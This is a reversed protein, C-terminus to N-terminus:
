CKLSNKYCEIVQFWNENFCFAIFLLVKIASAKPRAKEDAAMALGKISQLKNHRGNGNARDTEAIGHDDINLSVLVALTLLEFSDRARRGVLGGVLMAADLKTRHGRVLATNNMDRKTVVITNLSSRFAFAACAM